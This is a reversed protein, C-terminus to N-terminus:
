KLYESTGRSFQIHGTIKLDLDLCEDLVVIVLAVMLAKFFKVGASAQKPLAAAMM